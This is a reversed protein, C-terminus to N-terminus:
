YVMGSGVLDFGVWGFGVWGSVVVGILSMENFWVIYCIYYISECETRLMAYCLM